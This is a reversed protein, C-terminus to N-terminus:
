IWDLGATALKTSSIEEQKIEEDQQIEPQDVSHLKPASRISIVM